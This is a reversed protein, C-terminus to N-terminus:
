CGKKGSKGSGKASGSVNKVSGKPLGQTGGSKTGKSM